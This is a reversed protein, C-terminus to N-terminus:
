VAIALKGQTHTTPLAALADAAQDLRYTHQVPVTLTGDDLLEGLRALAQPDPRSMVPAGAGPLPSTVRGGAKLAEAYAGHQDPTFSVLDIIADVGDTIQGAVDGDRDAVEDAGLSTLFDRDKDFGTAIVYAGAHKALQVAFSGVGGTAGVVLVREGEELSLADVCFLATIGALPTAAAPVLDVSEPMAAVTSERVAILEAWAGRHVGPDAHPIYGFVEDGAGFRTGAQEVVGAFDRGLVVPFDYEAMGKLMGGAVANDVPNVSSAQVRVVIEGDGPTPDPLDRVGPTADFDDLTVARM